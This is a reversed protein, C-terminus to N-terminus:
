KLKKLLDEYRKGVPVLELRRETEGQHSLRIELREPPMLDGLREAWEIVAIGQGYLFEDYGINSIEKVEDLRYFDFHYVPVKGEYMNMLVFTPSNVKVPNVGTGKAIGKVLTTKGTGLDGFLCLITGAKLHKSLRAGFAITDQPQHSSFSFSKM